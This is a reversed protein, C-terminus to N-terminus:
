RAAMTCSKSPSTAHPYMSGSNKRYARLQSHTLPTDHQLLIREEEEVHRRDEGPAEDLLAYRWQQEKLRRMIWGEKTKFRLLKKTVLAANSRPRVEMICDTLEKWMTPTTSYSQSPTADAPTCPTGVDWASSKTLSAPGSPKSLSVCSEQAKPANSPATVTNEEMLAVAATLFSQRLRDMHHCAILLQDRRWENTEKTWASRTSKQETVWSSKLLIPATPHCGDQSRHLSCPEARELTMMSPLSSSLTRPFPAENDHLTLTTM